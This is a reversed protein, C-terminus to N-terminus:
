YILQKRFPLLLLPASKFNRVTGRVIGILLDLYLQRAKFVPAYKGLSNSAVPDSFKPDFEM